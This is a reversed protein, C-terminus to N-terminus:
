AHAQLTILGKRDEDFIVIIDYYAADVLAANTYDALQANSDTTLTVTHALEGDTVNMFRLECEEDPFYGVAGTGNGYGFDLPNDLADVFSITAGAPVITAAGTGSTAGSTCNAGSLNVAPATITVAGTGSTAGSTCNAGVLTITSGASRTVPHTLSGASVGGSAVMVKGGILDVYNGSVQYDKLDWIAVCGSIDEGKGGAFIAARATSDLAVNFFAAEAVEGGLFGAAAGGGYHLAGITTRDHNTLDSAFNDSNHEAVNDGYYLDASTASTFIVIMAQLASSNANPTSGKNQTFGDGPILHTMAKNESFSRHWGVIYRGASSSQQAVAYQDSNKNNLSFWTVMTCPFADVLRGAYELYGSTGNLAITM